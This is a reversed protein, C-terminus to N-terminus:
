TSGLMLIRILWLLPNHNTKLDLLLNFVFAIFISVSKEYFRLLNISNYFYIMIKNIANLKM